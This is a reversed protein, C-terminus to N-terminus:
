APLTALTNKVSYEIDYGAASDAFTKIAYDATMNGNRDGSSDVKDWYFKPLTIVANMTTAPSVNIVPGNLQQLKLAQGPPNALEWQRKHVSDDFEMTIVGSIQRKARGRKNSNTGINNAFKKYSLNNQFTISFKILKDVIENSATALAAVNTGIFLQTGENQIYNVDRATLATFLPLVEFTDAATVAAPFASAVTIVTASNTSIQRIEGINATTGTLMKVYGGLFADITWGAAAQTITTTTGATATGNFVPLTVADNVVMLNGSFKWNGDADDIDMSVTFDGFQLGRAKHLLGDVGEEASFSSFLGQGPRYARTYGHVTNADDVATPAVAVGYQLLIPLDEYSLEDDYTGGFTRTGFKPNKAVGFTGDRAAKDVLPRDETINLVGGLKATPTVATGLVTEKGIQVKRLQTENQIDSRM